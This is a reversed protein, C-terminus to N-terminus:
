QNQLDKTNLDIELYKEGKAKIVKKLFRWPGKPHLESLSELISWFETFCIVGALFEVAHLDLSVVVFTDIIHAGVILTVAETLKNVTKWIKSSEIKRKKYKRSVKYGYIWDVVIFFFVSLISVYIPAFLSIIGSCLCGLLRDSSAFISKILTMTAEGVNHVM